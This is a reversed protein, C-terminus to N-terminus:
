SRSSPAAPRSPETVILVDDARLRGLLQGPQRDDLHKTSSITGEVWQDIGYRNRRHHEWPEAGAARGGDAGMGQHSHLRRPPVYAGEFVGNGVTVTGSGSQINGRWVASGNRATM